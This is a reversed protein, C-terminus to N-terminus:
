WSRMGAMVNKYFEQTEQETRKAERRRLVRIRETERHWACAKIWAANQLVDEPLKSEPVDGFDVSRSYKWPQPDARRRPLGHGNALRKEHETQARRWRLREIAKGFWAKRGGRSEIEQAKAKFWEESRNHTLHIAPDVHLYMRQDESSSPSSRRQRPPIPLRPPPKMTAAQQYIAADFAASDFDQIKSRRREEASKRPAYAVRNVLSFNQGDMGLSLGWGVSPASAAPNQPATNPQPTPQQAKPESGTSLTAEAFATVTNSGQSTFDERGASLAIAEPTESPAKAVPQAAKTKGNARNLIAILRTRSTKKATQKVVRGGPQHPIASKSSATADHSIPKEATRQGEADLITQISKERQGTAPHDGVYIPEERQQNM